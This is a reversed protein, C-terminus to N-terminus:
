KTAAMTYEGECDWTIAGDAGSSGKCTGKGKAGKLKGTGRVLMWNDTASQMVGDKMAASGQFSYEAKDGNDMTDTYYGHFKSQNGNVETVNTSVGTTSAAGAITFPKAKDALRKSQDIMFAHNPGVDIKHSQDPKTCKIVGSAKTQAQAACALLLLCFGVAVTKLKM